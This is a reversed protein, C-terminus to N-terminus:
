ITEENNTNGTSTVSLIDRQMSLFDVKAESLKKLKRTTLKGKGQSSLDSSLKKVLRYIEGESVSEGKNNLLLSLNDASNPINTRIELVYERLLNFVEFPLYIKETDSINLMKNEFDLQFSKLSAIQTATLGVKGVLLLILRDQIKIKTEDIIKEISDFELNDTDTKFFTTKNNVILSYNTPALKNRYLFKLFTRFTSARRNFSNREKNTEELYKLYNKVWEQNINQVETNTDFIYDLLDYLDGKYAAKTSESLKQDQEIQNIFQKIIEKM